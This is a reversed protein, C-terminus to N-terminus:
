FLTNSQWVFPSHDDMRKAGPLNTDQTKQKGMLNSPNLRDMVLREYVTVNLGVIEKNPNGARLVGIYDM